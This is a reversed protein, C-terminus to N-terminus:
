GRSSAVEREHALNSATMLRGACGKLRKGENDPDDRDRCFHRNIVMGDDDLDNVVLAMDVGGNGVSAGCRNCVFEDSGPARM